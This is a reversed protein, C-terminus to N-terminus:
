TGDKKRVLLVPSAFPSSSPRIIGNKLMDALQKEIENKQSPAYRYARVNVPSAGPLLAIQHDCYRPPPLSNPEKFLHRYEHILQQVEPITTSEDLSHITQNTLDDSNTEAGMTQPWLQVCHSIAKRKLLGKLKNGSIATCKSIESKIGHLTIRKGNYTLKMVKKGWHVWMPSCAELWDEGVIMDFCKLPLVRADSLFVHGQATWQLNKVETNCTMHNGNATTYQSASCPVLKDTMHNALNESIFTGISGSDVLIVVELGQVTGHLRMTKRRSQEPLADSSVAMVVDCEETCEESSKSLSRRTAFGGM